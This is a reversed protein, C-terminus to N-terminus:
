RVGGDSDAAADDDAQRKTMAGVNAGDHGGDKAGETGLADRIRRRYDVVKQILQDLTEKVIIREGNVLHLTTDPTAEAEYIHDPNVVVVQNHLRTLKIMAYGLSLLRRAM